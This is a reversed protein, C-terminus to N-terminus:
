FRIKEIKPQVDTAILLVALEVVQREAVVVGVAVKVLAVMEVVVAVLM